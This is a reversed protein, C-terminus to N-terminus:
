WDGQDSLIELFLNSIAVRAKVWRKCIPCDIRHCTVRHNTLCTLHDCLPDFERALLKISKQPAMMAGM